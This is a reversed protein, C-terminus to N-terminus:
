APCSGGDRDREPLGSHSCSSIIGPPQILTDIMVTAIGDEESLRAVVANSNIDINDGIAHIAGRLDRAMRTVLGVRGSSRSTRIAQWGFRWILCAGPRPVNKSFRVSGSSILGSIPSIGSAIQEAEDARMADGLDTGCRSALEQLDRLSSARHYYREM